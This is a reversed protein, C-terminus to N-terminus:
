RIVKFYDIPFETRQKRPAVKIALDRKSQRTARKPGNFNLWYTSATFHLDIFDIFDIFDLYLAETRSVGNGISVAACLFEIINCLFM